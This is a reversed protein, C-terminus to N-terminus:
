ADFPEIKGTTYHSTREEVEDDKVPEFNIRLTCSREQEDNMLVFYIGETELVEYVKGNTFDRRMKGIYRVKM